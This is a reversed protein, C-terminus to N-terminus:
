RSSPDLSRKLWVLTQSHVKPEHQPTSHGGWPLALLTTEGALHQVLALSHSLPVVTDARAHVLLVPCDVRSAVALSDQREFYLRLAGADWRPPEGPASPPFRPTDEGELDPADDRTGSEERDLADLFVKESAPCILVMSAFAAEPAAILGYFGAMSSGRYCIADPDVTAMERLFRAAALVDEEMPGDGFGASDGHGRFDFALVVFGQRCAEVCFASHRTRRSGAGHGVVLGPVKAALAEPPLFLTAALLPGAPQPSPGAPFGATGANCRPAAQPGSLFFVERTEIGPSEVGPLAPTV